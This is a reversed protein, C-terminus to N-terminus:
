RQSEHFTKMTESPSMVPKYLYYHGHKLAILNFVRDDQQLLDPPQEDTDGIIAFIGGEHKVVIKKSVQQGM